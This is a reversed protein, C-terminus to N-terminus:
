WRWHRDDIYQLSHDSCFGQIYDLFEPLDKIQDKPFVLYNGVILKIFINDITESVYSFNDYNHKSSAMSGVIELYNGEFTVTFQEGFLNKHEDAKILKKFSRWYFWRQFRPFIIVAIAGVITILLSLQKNFFFLIIAFGILIFVLLKKNTRLLKQFQPSKSNTYLLGELELKETRTFVLKMM